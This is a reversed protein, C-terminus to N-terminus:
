KSKENILVFISYLYTGGLLVILITLKLDFGLVIYGGITLYLWFPLFLTITFFNMKAKEKKSANYYNGAIFGKNVLEPLICFALACYISVTILLIKNTTNMSAVHLNTFFAISICVIIFTAMSYCILRKLMM